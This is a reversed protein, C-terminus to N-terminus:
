RELRCDTFAAHSRTLRAGTHKSARCAGRIRQLVTGEGREKEHKLRHHAAGSVVCFLALCRPQRTPPEVGVPPPLFATPSGPPSM